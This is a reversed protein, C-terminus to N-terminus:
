RLILVTGDGGQHEYCGIDPLGRYLRPLLDLDLDAETWTLPTGADRCPSGGKLRYDGRAPSKFGPDDFLCDSGANATGAPVLCHNYTCAATTAIDIPSARTGNGYVITNYLNAARGFQVGDAAGKAVRNGSITCNRFVTTSASANLSVGGIANDGRIGGVNDAILCNVFTMAEWPGLSCGGIYRGENGQIRCRTANLTDESHIGGINGYSYNGEIVVDVLNLTGDARIGGVSTGSNFRVICNTILSTGGTMRIGGYSAGSCHSVTVGSM